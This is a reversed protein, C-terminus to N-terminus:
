FEVGVTLAAAFKGLNPFNSAAASQAGQVRAYVYRVSLDAYMSGFRYGGGVLYSPAVHDNGVNQAPGTAPAVHMTFDPKDVGMGLQGYASGFRPKWVVSVGRPHQAGAFHNGDLDTYSSHEHGADWAQVAWNTGCVAAQAAYNVQRFQTVGKAADWWTGNEPPTQFGLGAALCLGVIMPTEM